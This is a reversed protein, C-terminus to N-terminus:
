VSKPITHAYLDGREMAVSFEIIAWQKLWVYLEV